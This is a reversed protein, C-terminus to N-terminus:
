FKRKMVVINVNGKVAGTNWSNFEGIQQFGAWQAATFHAISDHPLIIWQASANPAWGTRGGGNLYFSISPETYDIEEVLQDSKYGANWMTLAANRAASFPAISPILFGALLITVALSGIFMSVFARRLRCKFLQIAVSISIATSLISLVAAAAKSFPIDFRSMFLIWPSISGIFIVLAWFVVGAKALASKWFPPTNRIARVMTDAMLFAIPPALPLLYHPLKQKVLELIILPGITAAVCFRIAPLHRNRWANVMSVPLILSWPLFCPWILLLYYGYFTGRGELSQNFIPGSMNRNLMTSLFAPDRQHILILWPCLVLPIILVGLWPQTSWLWRITALWSRLSFINQGADLLALAIITGGLTGFIVPGKTLIAIGISTWFIIAVAISRRGSYFFALCILAITCSLAMEADVLASKAIFIYLAGSGMVAMTWLARQRGAFYRVAYGVVILTLLSCIVSPLRATFESQGFLKMTVAQCWFAFVPKSEFIEDRCKPVIWDGTNVMSQSVGAYWGEDRDFLAMRNNGFSYAFACATFIMGAWVAARNM